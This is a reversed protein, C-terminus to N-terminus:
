RGHRPISTQFGHPKIKEPFETKSKEGQQDRNKEGNIEIGLARQPAIWLGEVSETGDHIGVQAVPAAVLLFHTDFRKPLGEPTIWHAFPVMLETALRQAERLCPTGEGPELHGKAFGWHGERANRLLLWRPGEPAPKWIVV